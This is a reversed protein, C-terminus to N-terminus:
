LFCIVKPHNVLSSNLVLRVKMKLRDEGFAPLRACDFPKSLTSFFHFSSVVVVSVRMMSDYFRSIQETLRRELPSDGNEVTKLVRSVKPRPPRRAAPPPTSSAAPTPSTSPPSSLPRCSSRTDPRHRRPPPVTSKRRSTPRQMPSVVFNLNPRNFSRHASGCLM